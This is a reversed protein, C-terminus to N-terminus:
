RVSGALITAVKRNGEATLHVGDPLRMGPQHLVSIVIGMADVIRIGRGKLQAKIAAINAASVTPSIGHRIDNFGSIALIVTKTGNPVASPVRALEEGTMEGYVGANTVQVNSGKAHLMAELQAPWMQSLDGGPGHVASHGLAVIQASALSTVTFSAGLALAFIVAKSFNMHHKGTKLCLNGRFAESTKLIPPVLDSRPLFQM